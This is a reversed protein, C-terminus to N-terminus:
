KRCPFGLQKCLHSGDTARCRGNRCIAPIGNILYYGNLRRSVCRLNCLKGPKVPAATTPSDTTPAATTPASTTPAATTPASTSPPNTESCWGDAVNENIWTLYNTVRAYVGANNALACGNGYSVVGVVTYRGDEKLVLPGGSDGQCSDTGPTYACMRTSGINGYPGQCTSDSNAVINVTTEKLLNSTSGGFSTTGWGSVVAQQDVYLQNPDTPLCAPVVNDNFVVDTSLRLLAIDNNTRSEDYDDREIIQAVPINQQPITEIDSNKSFDGIKVLASRASVGGSQVCHMATLVYKKNILTGGCAACGDAFCTQVFVQYPLKNQPNVVSGGVIRGAAPNPNSVAYGCGCDITARNLSMKPILLSPDIVETENTLLQIELKAWGERSYTENSIQIVDIEPHLNKAQSVGALVFTICWVSIM